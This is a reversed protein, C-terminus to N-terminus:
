NGDRNFEVLRKALSRLTSVSEDADIRRPKIQDVRFRREIKEKDGKKLDM